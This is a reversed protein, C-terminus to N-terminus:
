EKIREIREELDEKLEDGKFEGGFYDLRAAIAIKNAFARAIKGRLSKPAQHVYPHQLLAGHKPPDTGKNLHKFLAKEAGLVQITSAPKKALEELSGALSILEGGLKPGTLATMNPAYKEMRRRVYDHLKERYAMDDKLGEAMKKFVDEEKETIEGGTHDESIDWGKEEIINERSGHQFIMNVYEEDSVGQELEPFHLSYWDRLREMKINIIENLDQIADVAKALHEGFDISDRIKKSGLKVLAEQLLTEQYSYEELDVELDSLEGEWLEGIDNLRKSTVSFGDWREALNKEEELIEGKEMSFKKEALKEPDKSFLEKDLVKSDGIMFVGFWTTHLVRTNKEEKDNM